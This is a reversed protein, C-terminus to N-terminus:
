ECPPYSLCSLDDPTPDGRCVGKEIPPPGGLFLFGLLHIADTIELSGNDDLDGTKRCSPRPGGLFLNELLFVADSLDVAGDANADGSKFAIGRLRVVLGHTEATVTQGKWLISNGVPEGRGELGDVFAIRCDTAVDAPVDMEYLVRLVTEASNMHLVMKRPNSLGIVSIVGRAGDPLPSGRLGSGRQQVILGVGGLDQPYPDLDPTSPDHDDDYITSVVVGKVTFDKVTLCTPDHLLSLTWSQPGDGGPSRSESELVVDVPLVHRGAAVNGALLFDGERPPAEGRPVASLKFRPECEGLTFLWDARVISKVGTYLVDNMVPGAETALPLDVFALRAYSCGSLPLYVGLTVRAITQEGPALSVRGHPDLEVVFSVGEFYLPRAAKVSYADKLDMESPIPATAPDGDDDVLTRVRIGDTTFSWLIADEILFAVSWGTPGGRDDLGSSTLTLEVEYTVLAFFEDPVETPPCECVGFRFEAARSPLALTLVCAIVAGRM